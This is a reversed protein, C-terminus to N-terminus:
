AEVSYKKGDELQVVPAMHCNGLCNSFAVKYKRGAIETQKFEDAIGGANKIYCPLGVCVTIGPEGSDDFYPYYDVIKIIEETKTRCIKALLKIDDSEISKNTEWLMQLFPVLAMQPQPFEDVAAEFYDSLNEKKM